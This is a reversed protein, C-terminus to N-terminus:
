ESDLDAVNALLGNYFEDTYERQNYNQASVRKGVPGTTTSSATSRKVARIDPWNNVTATEVVEIMASVNNATSRALGELTLTLARNTLSKKINCRMQLWGRLAERLKPNHTFGDIIKNFSPRSNEPPKDLPKEIPKELPKDAASKSVENTLLNNTVNTNLLIPNDLMPNELMPYDLKPSINTNDREIPHERIVYETQGLRGNEDRMRERTIYGREELEAIGTRVSDIGDTTFHALGKISFVWDDPVILMFTLLAKSKLSLSKDWQHYNNITTYDKNKEVRFVAM